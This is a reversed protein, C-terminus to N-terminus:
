HYIHSAVRPEALYLLRHLAIPAPIVTTYYHAQGICWDTNMATTQDLEDMRDLETSLEDM